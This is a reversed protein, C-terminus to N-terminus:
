VGPHLAEPPGWARVCARGIDNLPRPAARQRRARRTRLPRAGLSSRVPGIAPMLQHARDRRSEVRESSGCSGCALNKSACRLMRVAVAAPPRSSSRCRPAAPLAAPRPSCTRALVRGCVHGCVHGCAPSRRNPQSRPARLSHESLWCVAPSRLARLPPKLRREACQTGLPTARAVGRPARRPRPPLM